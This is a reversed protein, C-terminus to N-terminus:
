ESGRFIEHPTEIWNPMWYLADLEIFDMRFKDALNKALMSKGSSTTGVVVIRKFPFPKM